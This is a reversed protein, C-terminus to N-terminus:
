PLPPPQFAGVFDRLSQPWQDSAQMQALLEEVLKRSKEVIKRPPLGYLRHKLEHRSRAEWDRGKANDRGWTLWADTSQCPAMLVAVLPGPRRIDPLSALTADILSRIEQWRPSEVVCQFGAPLTTDLDFHVVLLDYFGYYAARVVDPMLRRVVPFGRAPFRKPDFQAGLCLHRVLRDAVVEDSDGETALLVRM